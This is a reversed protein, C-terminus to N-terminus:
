QNWVLSFFCSMVWVNLWVDCYIFKIYDKSYVFFYENSVFVQLICFNIVDLDFFVKDGIVIVIILGCFYFGQIVYFFIFFKNFLM